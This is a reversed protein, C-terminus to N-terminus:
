PWRLGAGRGVVEVAQPLHRGDLWVIAQPELEDHLARVAAQLDSWGALPRAEGWGPLPAGGLSWVVLPVHLRRLYARVQAPTYRSDDQTAADTVLVVARPRDGAAAFLAALAVADAVRETPPPPQARSLLWSLGAGNLAFRKPAAFPAAPSPDVTGPATAAVSPWVFRVRADRGLPLLDRPTRHYLRRYRQEVEVVWASLTEQAAADRVVVLDTGRSDVAAVRLPRGGVAFRGALDEPRLEWRGSGASVVPLATLESEV